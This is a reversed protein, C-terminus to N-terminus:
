RHQYNIEQISKKLKSRYHQIATTKHRLRQLWFVATLRKRYRGNTGKEEAAQRPQKSKCKHRKNEVPIYIKRVINEFDQKWIRLDMGSLLVINRNRLRADTLIDKLKKLSEEILISAM